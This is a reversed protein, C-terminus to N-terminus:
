PTPTSEPSPATATVTDTATVTATAGAANGAYTVKWIVGTQPEADMGQEDFRVVGFDAVYLADDPGWALQLPRRLGGNNETVWAPKKTKNVLFDSVEGSELNVRQVRFGPWEDQDKYYPIIAGFNAVLIEQESDLGFAERGFVMGEAAAHVPLKALPDVPRDRDDLLQQRTEESLAFEHAFPEGKFEPDNPRSFREDTIPMSSYYDPWGYWTGPTIEYVTEWDDYIPRPEMVNGSNQTAVLRGSPSFDYGYLSRLGWALREPNSGDPETRYFAGHCWFEGEVVQGAETEVGLPTYVGATIKDGAEETLINDLEFNLGTLTVDECPIEHADPKNFAKMVEMMHADVPGSNGQTSLVFYMMGDPGFIPKHNLFEGWVPLGNIITRFEGTEPNLTSYRSRHSVYILGNDANYTLGTIPPIIGEPMDQSTEFQRITKIPVVLDYLVEKSGDAGIRLIRAQPAYEPEEGYSHGGVEAAYIEGNPGIAVDGVYSLGTAVPEAQYGPPAQIDAANAPLTGSVPQSLDVQPTPTAGQAELPVPPTFTPAAEGEPVDGLDAVCATLLMSALLLSVYLRVM